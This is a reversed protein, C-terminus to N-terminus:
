LMDKHWLEFYEHCDVWQPRDLKDGGGESPFFTNCSLMSLLGHSPAHIFLYPDNFEGKCYASYRIYIHGPIWAHNETGQECQARPTVIKM